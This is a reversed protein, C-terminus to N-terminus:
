VVSKRDVEEAQKTIIINNNNWKEKQRALLFVHGSLFYLVQFCFTKSTHFILTKFGSALEHIEEVIKTVPNVTKKVRLDM